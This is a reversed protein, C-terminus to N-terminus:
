VLEVLSYEGIVAFYADARLRRARRRVREDKLHFRIPTEVTSRQSEPNARVSLAYRLDGGYDLSTLEILYAIRGGDPYWVAECVKRM